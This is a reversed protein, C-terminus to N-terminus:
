HSARLWGWGHTHAHALVASTAACATGPSLGGGCREVGTEPIEDAARTTTSFGPWVEEQLLPLAALDDKVTSEHWSRSSSVLLRRRGILLFHTQTHARM